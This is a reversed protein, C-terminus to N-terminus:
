RAGGLFASTKGWGEIIGKPLLRLGQGLDLRLASFRVRLLLGILVPWSSAFAM